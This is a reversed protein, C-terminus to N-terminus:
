ICNKATITYAPAYVLTAFSRDSVVIFYEVVVRGGNLVVVVVVVVVLVLSNDLIFLWQKKLLIGISTLDLEAIQQKSIKEERGLAHSLM